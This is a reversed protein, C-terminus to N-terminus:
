ATREQASTETRRRRRKAAGSAKPAEDRAALPLVLQGTKQRMADELSVTARGESENPGELVM